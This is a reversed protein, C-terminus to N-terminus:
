TNKIKNNDCHLNYSLNNLGGLLPYFFLTERLDEDFNGKLELRKSEIGKNLNEIMDEKLYRKYNEFNSPNIELEDTFKFKDNLRFFWDIFESYEDIVNKIIKEDILSYKLNQDDAFGIKNSVFVKEIKRIDINRDVPTQLLAGICSIEKPNNVQKLDINIKNDNELIDDFIFQSLRKLTENNGVLKLSKSGTGSFTIYRPFVIGKNKMVQAIHYLISAYFLTVVIKFDTDKALDSSFSIPAGKKIVDANKELSLLFSLIEDSKKDKKLSDLINKLANLSNNTLLSDYQEIYKQVLGNMNSNRDGFADGFLANGAFRFSTLLYPQNNKYIVVDTTGGGIDISIVSNQGATVGLENRFFYFPTISEAVNIPTNITNIHKRFLETWIEHLENIKYTSMSTPYMWILETLDLNGKELLVKNKILLMIKELFSKVKKENHEISKWKLNGEIKTNVTAMEKEYYFPINTDALANVARNYDLDINYSLVTRLPFFNIIKPIQEKRIQEELLGLNSMLFLKETESNLLFLPEIQSENTGIQFKTPRGENKTYEIHTNTTGFDVAFIFKATGDPEKFLPILVGKAWQHSIVVYDFNETIIHYDSDLQDGKKRDSRRSKSQINIEKEQNYLAIHYDSEKYISHNDINMIGIRYSPKGQDSKLFPYITLNFKNEIIVGKNKNIDAELTQHENLSPYYTRSYTIYKGDKIPIRLLVTLGGTNGKKMEIVKQGDPMTGQLNKTSFYDFYDKKIPLLYGKNLNTSDTLNGTFYKESDIPYPTSIIYSELFDSITLYPYVSGDFPLQRLNIPNNDTYPAKNNRNWQATTYRINESFDDVPLVMPRIGQYKTSNIIFGSKESNFGGNKRLNIGLVEVFNGDNGASLLPFGNEFNTKNLDTIENRQENTLERFNLDLYDNVERFSTVFQTNFKRLGYIFKQFEFDRKYFPQYVNDFPKDIGDFEITVYDLKNASTFFLSAPSTGGIINIDNPGEISNLLYLRQTTDFNYAKADQTLFLQLTEGLQKHKPNNSDLLTNLDKNKDWVIINVKDQFRDINFFIEAVDLSDSVTKNHITKGDLDNSNVVNEFATKVLDIRAFPSPISTIEKSATAGDPDKIGDIATKGYPQSDMWHEILDTDNHFRFVKAM